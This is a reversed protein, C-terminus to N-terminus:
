RVWAWENEARAEAATYITSGGRLPRRSAFAVIRDKHWAILYPRFGVYGGLRNKATVRVSTIWVLVPKTYGRQLADRTVSDSWEFRASEADILEDKIFEESIKRHERPPPPGYEEITASKALLERKSPGCGSILLGAFLLSLFIALRKKM